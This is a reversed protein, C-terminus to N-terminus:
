FYRCGAEALKRLEAKKLRRVEELKALLMNRHQKQTKAQMLAVEDILRHENNVIEQM